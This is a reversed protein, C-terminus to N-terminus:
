VSRWPSAKRTWLTGIVPIFSLLVWVGGKNRDHWRKTTVAVWAWSLIVTAFTLSMAVLALVLSNMKPPPPPPGTVGGVVAQGTQHAPLLALVIRFALLWYLITVLTGLWYPLRGVRGKFSFFLSFLEV